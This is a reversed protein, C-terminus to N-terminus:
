KQSDDKAKFFTLVTSKMSMKLSLEKGGELSLRLRDANPNEKFVKEAVEVADKFDKTLLDAAKNFAIEFEMVPGLKPSSALAEKIIDLSNEGGAFLVVENGIAFYGPGNGFNKVDSAQTLIEVKHINVQGVKAFDIEVKKKETDPLDKHIQKLLAEIKKGESVKMATIFAYKGLGTKRIDLVADMTGADLSPILAKTMSEMIGKKGADKEEAVANKMGELFVKAFDKRATEPMLANLNMHVVSNKGVIGAGISKNTGLNAISKALETGNKGKFSLGLGFDGAKRDMELKLSLEEGQTFVQVISQLLMESVDNRFQAVAPSEGPIKKQKVEAIQLEIQPVMNKVLDEPLGALNLSISMVGTKEASFLEKPSILKKDDIGKEDRITACMYGDKFKFFLPFPSNPINMVYIGNDGKKAELSLKALMEIFAKEDVIPILGVVESDILNPGINGYLGFPKEPDIGELGKAGTMAKLLGEVQKAEEKKGVAEALFFANEVLRNIPQVRLVIGPPTQKNQAKVTPAFYLSSFVAFFFTVKILNRSMM